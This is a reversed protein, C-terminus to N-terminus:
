RLDGHGGGHALGAFDDVLQLLPMHPEQQKLEGVQQADFFGHLDRGGLELPGQGALHREVAASSPKARTSSASANSTGSRPVNRTKGQSPPVASPPSPSASPATARSIQSM